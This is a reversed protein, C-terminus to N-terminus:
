CRGPLPVPMPGGTRTLRSCCTSGFEERGDVRTGDRELSAKAAFGGDVASETVQMGAVGLRQAELSVVTIAMPSARVAAEMALARVEAWAQHDRAVFLVQHLERPGSERSTIRRKADAILAPSAAGDQCACRLAAFFEDAPMAAFDTAPDAM